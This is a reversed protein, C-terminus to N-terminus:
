LQRALVLATLASIALAMVNTVVREVDVPEREKKEGTKKDVKEPKIGVSIISGKRVKPTVKFLLLNSTRKIEGNPHEVSILSKRARAKRDIGAAFEKLYWNARHAGTYAVSIRGGSIMKEPYLTSAMTAGLNLTVLEKAKPISLVDGTKLIYNYKSNENKLVEELRTIVTGLGEGVRYLSAGEPFAELTLGGARRILSSLKENKNILVYTGPYMVEGELTVRRNLEFDPVTRVVIRDYPLLTLTGSIVNLNDDVELTAVSIETPQNDRIIVRFVDVRNGAAELKLGGALTLVDKLTLGVGLQFRGPSRVAGEVEVFAEDTFVTADLAELRDLAQLVQNQSGNPEEMAKFLDIQIYDLLKPNNVNSRVIYGFRSATPKLGGSLLILDRVRISEEPDFPHSVPQRFEGVSTINYKDIFRELTYTLIKDKPQLALDEASGAKELISNLNLQSLGITQDPRTRLLFALDKRSEKLLMGKKLLDSLRMGEELDYRGPYEVAGDIEVFQELKGPIVKIRVIDGNQLTYDTNGSQLDKYNLDILIKESGSIREIQIFDQYAITNFGGAYELLKKLNEGKTLEYRFPRKVAGEISVIREAVPVFLIDNEELFYDYQVKPDFLFEYVDVKRTKSGRILQINRLSGIDSPGGAAVLANFATNVASFTYSGYNFVEGFINITVIRAAKVSMAYQEPRFVYYNALRSRILDRAKGYSTGKLFIRPIGTPAIYGEKNIIYTFDASSVGWISVSIEDGEGLIYSDPPKIDTVTKYVQLSQRRFIDQGYITAAPADKKAAEALEEGIAEEVTAGEKVAQRIDTTAQRAVEAAEPALQVPPASPLATEVKATQAPSPQQQAKQAAKEQELEAIAERIVPELQPLQEPRVNDIDVGKQKMKTRFEAETIGRRQLEQVAMARQAPPINQAILGSLGFTLLAFILILKNM